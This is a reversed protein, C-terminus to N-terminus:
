FNCLDRFPALESTIAVCEDKKNMKPDSAIIWFAEITKRASIESEQALISVSVEFEADRHYQMRHAGLPTQVRSRRMGDLHEKVRVCLPRGTEGVYESGCLQCTVLYIM